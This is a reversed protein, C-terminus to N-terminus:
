RSRRSRRVKDHGNHGNIPEIRTIHILACHALRDYMWSKKADPIVVKVASRGILCLDPHTVDFTEGDFMCVRFPEFPQTAVHERVDEPRL